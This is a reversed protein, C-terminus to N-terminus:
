GDGAVQETKKVPHGSRAGEAPMEGHVRHLGRGADLHEGLREREHEVAIDIQHLGGRSSTRGAAGPSGAASIRMNSSTGRPSSAQSAAAIMTLLATVPMRAPSNPMPPPAMM